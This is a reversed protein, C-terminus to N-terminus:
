RPKRDIEKFGFLGCRREKDIPEDYQLCIWEKELYCMRCNKEASAPQDGIRTGQKMEREKISEPSRNLRNGDM